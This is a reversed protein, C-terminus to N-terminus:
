SGKQLPARFNEVVFIALFCLVAGCLTSLLVILSRKPRIKQVPVEAAEVLHLATFPVSFTANLQKLREKDLSMQDQLRSLEQEMQKLEALIPAYRDLEALAKMKKSTSGMERAMYKIVSDRYAPYKKYFLIKGKSDELESEAETLIKTYLNSQGWSDFVGASEKMKKLRVALSDGQEQKVVLNINYNDILKKQSDKVIKQALQEIKVRAANAIGAAVIPDTDEAILQLAGYKTKITQFNELLEERVKFKAKPDDSDIDYHTYLDFSDILHFLVEHSTAITFLRDLDKDDGYIRVEKEESGIPIPKALDPSAAYFVTESRYYNPMLLSAGISLLLIGLIARILEKRWKHLQQFFESLSYQDNM